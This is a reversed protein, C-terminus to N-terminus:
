NFIFSWRVDFYVTIQESQNDLEGEYVPGLTLNFLIKNGLARNFGWVPGTILIRTNATLYDKVGIPRFTYLLLYGAYNVGNNRIDKNRELRKQYNYYFRYEASVAPSWGLKTHSPAFSAPDFDEYLLPMLGARFQITQTKATKLEAGLQVGSFGLDLTGLTRTEPVFETQAQSLIPLLFVSVLFGFKM